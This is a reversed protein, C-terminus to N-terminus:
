KFEPLPPNWRVDSEVVFNRIGADALARKWEAVLTQDVWYLGVAVHVKALRKLAMTMRAKSKGQETDLLDSVVLFVVKKKGTAVGPQVLVYDIVDAIGSHLLSGNPDSKAKLYVRFHDPDDFDRRLQDPTGQYLLPKNTNSLQALMVEDATGISNHTYKDVVQCAFAFAKGDNATMTDRMSGSLDLAIVLIFGEDDDGGLAPAFLSNGGSRRPEEICGALALPILVALCTLWKM